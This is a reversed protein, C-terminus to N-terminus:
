SFASFIHLWCPFNEFCSTIFSFLLHLCVALLRWGVKIGAKEAPSWPDVAKIFIGVKNGGIFHWGIFEFSRKEIEIEVVGERPRFFM